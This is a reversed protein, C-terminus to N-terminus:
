GVYVCACAENEFIHYPKIKVELLFFFLPPPPFVIIKSNARTLTDGKLDNASFFYIIRLHSKIAHRCAMTHPTQTYQLGASDGPCELGYNPRRTHSHPEPYNTPVGPKGEGTVKPSRERCLERKWSTSEYM